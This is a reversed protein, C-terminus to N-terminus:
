KMASVWEEEYVSNMAEWYLTADAGGDIATRASPLIYDGINDVNEVQGHANKKKNRSFEEETEM